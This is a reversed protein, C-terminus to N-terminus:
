SEDNLGYTKLGYVRILIELPNQIDEDLRYTKLAYVRIFFAPNQLHISFRNKKTM